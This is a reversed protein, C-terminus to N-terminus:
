IIPPEMQKQCCWSCMCVSLRFSAM